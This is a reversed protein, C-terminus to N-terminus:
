GLASRFEFELLSLKLDGHCFSDAKLAAMDFKAREHGAVLTLGPGPRIIFHNHGQGHAIM